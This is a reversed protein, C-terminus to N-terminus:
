VVVIGVWMSGIFLVMDVDFYVSLVVGVGLGDGYVFNFVGVLVGVDYMIEVFIIGIFFVVELLKFVMLCGVVLVLVVKCVIQNLLWNWFMIFVCVGILEWVIRVMGMGMVFLYCVFVECVIRLYVVGVMVQLEEVVWCLVGMDQFLVWVFDFVCEDYVEIICDFLVLWEEVWICLYSDFVCCVVVVVCDVDVGIGLVVCSVFGEIVFDVVDIMMVVVVKSWRGDIYFLVNDVM